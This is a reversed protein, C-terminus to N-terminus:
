KTKYSDEPSGEPIILREEAEKYVIKGNEKSKEVDINDLKDRNNKVVKILGIAYKEAQEKDEIDFYDEFIAGVQILRRTRAKREKEKLQKALREKKTEMQKIKKAYNELREADTKRAM